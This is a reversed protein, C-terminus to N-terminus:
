FFLAAGNLKFHRNVAFNLSHDNLVLKWLKTEPHSLIQAADGSPADTAPYALKSIKGFPIDHMPYGQALWVRAIAFEAASSPYRRVYDTLLIVRKKLDAITDISINRELMFDIFKKLDDGNNFNLATVIDHLAKHNYFLDIIRSIKRTYIIDAASFTKNQMVDYPPSPAYVIGFEKASSKLPTGNLIKLTELQIESPNVKILNVIDELLSNLTQQPLGSILDVHTEFNQCSTLFKIGNLVEAPNSNRGIACQVNQDLSQIGAEIHLNPAIKLENRLAENLFQPHIELHFEIGSFKERFLKLLAAGRWQPFNFTRDLLRIEKVGRKQLISIEEEVVAIDKLRLQVNTSTCYKCGIPCGRSTEYQVFAKDTRFFVDDVVHLKDWNDYQAKRDTPLIGRKRNEPAAALFESFIGEAEGIFVTHIFPHKELLEDASDHSCEPGGLVIVTEPCLVHVRSLINLAHERNFLYLTCGLIDPKNEAIKVAVEAPDSLITCETQSWLIGPVNKAACHLTPLALSSHSYSSNVSLFHFKATM